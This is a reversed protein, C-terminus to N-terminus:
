KKLKKKLNYGVWIASVAVGSVPSFEFPIATTSATLVGGQDFDTVLNFDTFSLRTGNTTDLSYGNISDGLSFENLSDFEGFQLVDETSILYNFRWNL